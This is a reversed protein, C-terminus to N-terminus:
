VESSDAEPLRTFEMGALKWNHATVAEEALRRSDMVGILPDHDSPEDGLQAYITRGVKRGVRWRRREPRFLRKRTM